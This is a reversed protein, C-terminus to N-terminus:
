IPFAFSLGRQIEGLSAAQAVTVNWRIARPVPVLRRHPGAIEKGEHRETWAAKIDIGRVVLRVVPNPPLGKPPLRNVIVPKAM